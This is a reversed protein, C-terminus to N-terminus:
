PVRVARSVRGFHDVLIMDANSISRVAPVFMRNQQDARTSSTVSANLYGNKISWVGASIPTPVFVRHFNSVTQYYRYTTFTNNANLLIDVTGEADNLRWKGIAMQHVEADTLVRGSASGAVIPTPPTPQAAPAPNIGSTASASQAAVGSSPPAPQNTAYQMPQRPPLQANLGPIRSEGPEFKQLVLLTRGSGAPSGFEAPLDGTKHAICVILKGEDFKYIGNGTQVDKDFVSIRQPYSTADLRFSKTSKTGDMPSQFLITYDVIELVGGGPLMQPMQQEPIARGDDVMEVVRWFGKFRTLDNEAAPQQAHVLQPSALLCGVLSVFVFSRSVIQTM